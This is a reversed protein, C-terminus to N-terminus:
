KNMNFNLGAAGPFASALSNIDIEGNEMKTKMTDLIDTFVGSKLMDSLIEIPNDGVEDGRETLHNNVKQFINGFIDLGPGLPSASSKVIQMSRSDELLVNKAGSEPEVLAYIKLLYAWFCEKSEDDLLNYSKEINIMVNNSYVIEKNVLINIDKTMVSEHNTVLFSRFVQVMNSITETNTLTVNSLFRNFLALPKYKKSLSTNLEKIFDSITTFTLIQIEKSNM